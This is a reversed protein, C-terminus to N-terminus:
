QAKKPQRIGMLRNYCSYCRGRRTPKALKGCEVCPKPPVYTQGKQYPQNKRLAEIRGDVQMHCSRCLPACRKMEQEIREVSAGQTRLSSVRHNPRNPHDEHHWEVPRAGCRACSTKNAVETVYRTAAERRKARRENPTM